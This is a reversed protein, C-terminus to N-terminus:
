RYDNKRYSHPAATVGRSLVSRKYGDVRFVIDIMTLETASCQIFGM